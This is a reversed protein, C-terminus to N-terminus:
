LDVPDADVPTDFSNVLGGLTLYFGVTAILDIMGHTGALAQLADRTAPALRATDLLEDVAAAITADEPAMAEPAGRLSAIRADALGVARSRHVHHTWEYVSSLRHAIRLIAVELREAGLANAEVIHRRLPVWARLLDPHHAMVRYVNLRGAFTDRLDDLAAPWDAGTLPPCPSGTPSGTPTDTM